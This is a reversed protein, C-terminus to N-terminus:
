IKKKVSDTDAPAEDMPEGSDSMGMEQQVDALREQLDQTSVAMEQFPRGKIRHPLALEAALIIDRDTIRERGQLAAHEGSEGGSAEEDSHQPPAPM